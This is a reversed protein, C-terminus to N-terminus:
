TPELFRPRLVLVMAPLLVLAGILCASISVVVLFGFFMVPLFNSLLLVSFGVVVSLANFVIGRGATLLTRVVADEPVLGNAREERYRWLFHITYDIGVGVMISSLMATIVNLEIGLWGMGGFLLAVALILPVVAYFGAFVSRFTVAVLIVVFLLALSLSTIQGEVVARVLEVFVDGFGVVLTADGIPHEELHAKTAEVVRAIDQTGISNIRATLLTHEHEFDVIREFDDPEGGMSYLLHYQAVAERSDPLQYHEEGGGMVAQNMSKIISAISSTFGVEEQAALMEELEDLDALLGPDDVDGTVQVSLETTGGFYQNILASTEAVPSQAPYYNVPNTDVLIRPIGTAIVGTVVLVGVILHKPRSGVWRATWGLGRDLLNAQSADSLGHIPKAVPMVSLLAPIFALSGLLAFLVGISALIGLQAAPVIIHTTLCLLGAMTTIGAAIVPAGLSGLVRRALAPGDLGAGPQNDEQYKAMLHIGYDNAVALLIVPLVVTVMQVKWGFLPILGMAVITSMVVVSFPLLVGRVQRFCAWLFLLIVLLGIPVFKQMDGRIDESVRTRVEPLGGLVVDAPGEHAEILDRVAAITPGDEVGRALIGIVATAHRDVSLVNGRVMPNALARAALAEVEETNGPIELVVPEVIMMGDEGRIETLNFLDIVKEIAELEYLSESLDRVQELVEPALVDDAQVVVMVMESGGFREEVLNMNLREPMDAPLQNKVEPDIELNPLQLAFFGTVVTFFLIVWWPHKVVLDSPHPM